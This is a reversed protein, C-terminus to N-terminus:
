KIEVNEVKVKFMLFHEIGVADFRVQLIPCEKLMRQKLEIDNCEECIGTIRIWERSELKKAVIQIQEHKRMQQHAENMDNTSLYLDEGVEM